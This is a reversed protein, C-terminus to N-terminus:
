MFLIIFSTSVFTAEHHELFKDLCLLGEYSSIPIMNEMMEMEEDATMEKLMDAETPLYQSAAAQEVATSSSTATSNLDAVMQRAKYVRMVKAAIFM